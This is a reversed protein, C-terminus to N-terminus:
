VEFNIADIIGSYTPELARMTGLDKDYTWPIDLVSCLRALARCDGQISLGEMVKAGGDHALKCLVNNNTVREVKMGYYVAAIMGELVMSRWPEDVCAVISDCFKNAKKVLKQISELGEVGFVNSYKIMPKEDETDNEINFHPMNVSRTIMARYTHTRFQNHEKEEVDKVYKGIDKAAKDYGSKVYMDDDKEFDVGFDKYDIAKTIKEILTDFKM